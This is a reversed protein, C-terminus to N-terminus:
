WTSIAARKWTNTATCIYIYSADWCIDGANGTDSASAPTKATRIRIVDTNADLKATPSSTGIGIKGDSTIQLRNGGSNVFNYNGSTYEIYVGSAFMILPDTADTLTISKFTGGLSSRIDGTIDLTYSPSTTGIGVNGSSAIRMRETLTTTGNTTFFALAGYPAGASWAGVHVSSIKTYDYIAGTAAAGAFVLASSSGDGTGFNSFRAAITEAGYTYNYVALTGSTSGNYSGISMGGPAISVCHQLSGGMTAVASFNLQGSTGSASGTAELRAM